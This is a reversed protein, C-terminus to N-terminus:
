VRVIREGIDVYLKSPSIARGVRVYVQNPLNPIEFSAIIRGELSASLFYDRGVDLSIFLDGTPGGLLIDCTTSTPKNIVVGQAHASLYGTAVANVALLNYTTYNLQTVAALLTWDNMVSDVQNLKALRVVSGVFVEGECNVAYIIQSSSGGGVGPPGQPGAPGQPGTAGDMGNAGNAGDLGNIGNAGAPGQPGTLNDQLSWVGAIKKYQDGTTVDQYIYGNVGNSNDPVGMGFLYQFDTGSGGGSDSSGMGGVAVFVDRRSPIDIPQTELSTGDSFQFEFYFSDKNQHVLIDNIIPADKGDSGKPGQNGTYGRPGVTGIGPLGPIGIDGTDGKEGQSGRQGRAGRPGKLEEKDTESLDSFTLKLSSKEEESLQSFKLKLSDVEETTLDSFKLRLTKFFEVHDEFNFDQGARGRQGRAGKPGKLSEIEEASLDSFKIKLKDTNDLITKNVISIIAEENESFIFSKGDQGSYGQPGRAGDLGKDGRLSNIQEETLDSFKLSFEQAWARITEEHEQFYFDKGSEGQPGRPGARPTPIRAVLEKDIKDQVSKLILALFVEHKM